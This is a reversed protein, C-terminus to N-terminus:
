QILAMPDTREREKDLGKSLKVEMGGAGAYGANTAVWVADDM